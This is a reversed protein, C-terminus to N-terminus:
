VTNSLIGDTSSAVRESIDTLTNGDQRQRIYGLVDQKWTVLTKVTAMLFTHCFARPVPSLVRGCSLRQRDAGCFHKGYPLYFPSFVASIAPLSAVSHKQM